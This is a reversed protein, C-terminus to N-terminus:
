TGSNVDGNVQLDGTIVVDGNEDYTVYNVSADNKATWKAGDWNWTTGNNKYEPTAAPDSPFTLAM